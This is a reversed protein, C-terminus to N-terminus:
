APDKWELQGVCHKSSLHKKAEVVTAYERREKYPFLAIHEFHEQQSVNCLASERFVSRVLKLVRAYCPLHLFHVCPNTNARIRSRRADVTRNCAADQKLVAFWLMRCPVMLIKLLSLWTRNTVKELETQGNWISAQRTLM